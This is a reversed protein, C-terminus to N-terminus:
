HHHAEAPQLQNPVATHTVNPPVPVIGPAPAQLPKSAEEVPEEQVVAEAADGADGNGGITLIPYAM